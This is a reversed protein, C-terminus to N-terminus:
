ALQSNSGWEESTNQMWIATAEGIIGNEVTM